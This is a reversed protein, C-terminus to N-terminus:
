FIISIDCAIKSYNNRVAYIYEKTPTGHEMTKMKMGTSGNKPNCNNPCKDSCNLHSIWGYNTLRTALGLANIM